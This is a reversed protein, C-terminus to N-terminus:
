SVIINSGISTGEPRWRMESTKKEKKRGTGCRELQRQLRQVQFKLCTIYCVSFEVTGAESNGKNVRQSSSLSTEKQTESGPSFSGSDICCPEATTEVLKEVAERLRDRRGKEANKHTLKRVRSTEAM